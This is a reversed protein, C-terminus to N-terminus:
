WDARRGGTVHKWTRGNRIDAATTVSVGHIEGLEQQTAGVSAYIGRVQAETLKASFTREGVVTARNDIDYVRHCKVCRPEYHEPDLSYRAGAPEDGEPVIREDPDEGDYSWERAQNGCDVCPFQGASGRLRAVRHHIGHYSPVDVRPRGPHCRRSCFQQGKRGMYPEGDRPCGPNECVKPTYTTKGNGAQYWVGSGPVREVYGLEAPNV